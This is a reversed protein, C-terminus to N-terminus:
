KGEQGIREAEIGQLIYEGALDSFEVGIERAKDGIIRSLQKPIRATILVTDEPEIKTM